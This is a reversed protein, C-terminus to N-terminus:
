KFLTINKNYYYFPANELTMEITPYNYFYHVDGRRALLANDTPPCSGRQFTVVMIVMKFDNM